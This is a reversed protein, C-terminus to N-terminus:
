FRAGKRSLKNTSNAVETDAKAVNNQDPQSSLLPRKFYGMCM